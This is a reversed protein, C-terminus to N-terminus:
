RGKKPTQHVELLGTLRFIGGYKLCQPKEASPFYPYIESTQPEELRSWFIHQSHWTRGGQSFPRQDLTIRYFQRARKLRWLAGEWSPCERRCFNIGWRLWRRWRQLHLRDEKFRLRYRRLSVVWQALARSSPSIKPGLSQRCVCCFNLRWWHRHLAQRTQPLFIRRFRVLLPNWWRTRDLIDEEYQCVLWGEIGCTAHKHIVKRKKFRLWLCFNKSTKFM